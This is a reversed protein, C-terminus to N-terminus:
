NVTDSENDEEIRVRNAALVFPAYISYAVVINFLSLLTAEISGGTALYAYLGPPTLRPVALFIPPAWGWSTALYAIKALVPPTILWPIAFQPNLVILMGYAIKTTLKKNYNSLM